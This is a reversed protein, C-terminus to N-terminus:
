EPEPKKATRASIVVPLDVGEEYQVQTVLYKRDFEGLGNLSITMGPRINLSTGREIIASFEAEMDDNESARIQPIEILPLEDNKKPPWHLQLDEWLGLLKIESYFYLTGESEFLAFQADSACRKLVDWLSEPDGKTSTQLVVKKEPTPEGRFRLGYKEAAIQAFQSSSINAYASVNKDRKMRQIARRRAEVKIRPVMGVGPSIECSAIEFDGNGNFQLERRRQFYNGKIMKLSPDSVTFTAQSVEDLTWDFSLSNTYRSVDLEKKELEKDKKLEYAVVKLGEIM